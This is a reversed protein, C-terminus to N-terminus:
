RRRRQEHILLWVLYGGGAGKGASGILYVGLTAALADAFAFWLYGGVSGVGFVAIGIAVSLAAGANVGPLGPDALPNRTLAQILAGSAGLAAGALLGAATHPLRLDRM